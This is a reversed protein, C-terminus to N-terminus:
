AGRAVRREALMDGARQAALTELEEDTLDRARKAAGGPAAKAQGSAKPVLAGTWEAWLKAAQVQKPSLADLAQAELAALIMQTKEVGGSVQMALEHQETRFDEAAQWDRLTRPAVGLEAALEGKTRPQREAPLTVLWDLLRQKRPDEV